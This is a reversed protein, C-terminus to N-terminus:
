VKIKRRLAVARLGNILAHMEDWDLINIDDKNPNVRAKIWGPLAMLPDNWGQVGHIHLQHGIEGAYRRMRAFEDQAKKHWHAMPWGKLQGGAQAECISMYIEFDAQSLRKSKSSPQDTAKGLADFKSNSLQRLILYRGADDLGASRASIAATQIQDRTWSM